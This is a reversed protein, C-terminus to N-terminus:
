ISGNIEIIVVTALCTETNHPNVAARTKQNLTWVNKDTANHFTWFYM